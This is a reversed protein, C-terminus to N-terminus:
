HATCMKVTVTNSVANATAFDPKGDGNFDGVAVGYSFTGTMGTDIPAEFRGDGTGLLVSANASMFNATVVDPVGDLNFDGVAISYPGISPSISSVIADQFTGDGRGLLVSVDDSSRNAIVLDLHGDLNMDHAMLNFSAAGGIKPQSAGPRFTGDGNGLEIDITLSANDATVVDDVGDGDFDGIAVSYPEAPYESPNTLPVDIAPALTGDGRGMFVSISHAMPNTAVADPFGDGNIDGVALNSTEGAAVTPYSAAPTLTYTDGAGTGLLVSVSDGHYNATIVDAIGDRNLDAIRGGTPYDGTTFGDPTTGIDRAFVGTSDGGNRFLVVTSAEENAAALDIDGDADLDAAMMVYPKYGSDYSVADAFTVNPLGYCTNAGSVCNNSFCDSALTCRKTGSCKHCTAGGCDVDTEDGDQTGNSCQSPTTCADGVCPQSSGGDSACGSAGFVTAAIALRMMVRKTM